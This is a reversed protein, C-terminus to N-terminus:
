KNAMFNNDIHCLPDVCYVSSRHKTSKRNCIYIYIQITPSHFCGIKTHIFSHLQLLFFVCCHTFLTYIGCLIYYIPVVSSTLYQWHYVLEYLRFFHIFSVCLKRNVIHSRTQFQTWFLFLISTYSISYVGSVNAMDVYNLLYQFTHCVCVCLCILEIQCDSPAHWLFTASYISELLNMSSM